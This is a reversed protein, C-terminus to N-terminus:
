FASSGRTLCTYGHKEPRGPTRSIFCTLTKLKQFIGCKMLNVAYYRTLGEDCRHKQALNNIIFGSEFFTGIKLISLFNVSFQSLVVNESAQPRRLGTAHDYKFM